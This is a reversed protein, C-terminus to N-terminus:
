LGLDVTSSRRIVENGGFTKDFCSTYYGSEMPLEFKLFKLLTARSVLQGDILMSGNDPTTNSFQLVHCGRYKDSAKLLTDVRKFIDHQFKRLTKDGFKSHSKEEIMMFNGNPDVFWIYDLNTSRFGINSDIEPQSRTWLGYDTSKTLPSCVMLVDQKKWVIFDFIRIGNIVLEARDNYDNIKISVFTQSDSVLITKSHIRTIEPIRNWSVNHTIELYRLLKQGDCNSPKLESNWNFIEELDRRGETM